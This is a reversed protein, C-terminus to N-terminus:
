SAQAPPPARGGPAPRWWETQARISLELLRRLCFRRGAVAAVLLAAVVLAPVFLRSTHSSESRLVVPPRGAEVASVSHGSPESRTSVSGPAPHVADADLQTGAGVAVAGSWTLGAILLVAVWAVLVSWRIRAMCDGYGDVSAGISDRPTRWQDPM